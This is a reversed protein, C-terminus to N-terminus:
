YLCYWITYTSNCDICSFCYYIITAYGLYAKYYYTSNPVLGTLASSFNGATLNTSAVQIGTGNPFGNTLSYEIGYATIATCGTASITGAATATTQTIASAAGTTVSPASNIGAGSAAVNISAATGGGAVVINGSYSQVLTPTFRVFIQQSYTGGPQTLSLTTTYTGGATTSYTFGALAAVTVNVVTLNSGSITFSNPGATTGTCINGFATIFLISESM